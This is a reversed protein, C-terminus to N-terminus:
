VVMILTCRLDFAFWVVLCILVCCLGFGCKGLVWVVVNGAGM